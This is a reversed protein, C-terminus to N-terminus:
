DQTLYKRKSLKSTLSAQRHTFGYGAVFVDGLAESFLYIVAVVTAAMISTLFVIPETFFLRIPLFLQTRMFKSLTPLTDESELSLGDFCTQRATTKVNQRIVHSPRSEHMGFCLIAIVGTAIAAITFVWPRALTLIRERVSVLLCSEGDCTRRASTHRSRRAM